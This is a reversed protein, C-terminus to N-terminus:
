TMRRFASVGIRGAEVRPIDRNYPLRAAECEASSRERGFRIELEARAWEGLLELGKSGVANM